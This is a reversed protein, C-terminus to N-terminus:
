TVIWAKLLKLLIEMDIPKSLFENAGAKLAEDKDKSMGKASIAFIPINKGIELNRIEKITELGDEVPMMIDMLVADIREDEKKIFEVAEKGNLASFTEAGYKQLASSLTFINRSDDDVILINKDKFIDSQTDMDDSVDGELISVDVDESREVKVEKPKDEIYRKASSGDFPIVLKFTTGKGVESEVEINGGMLNAFTKSISLGLGTGGFKRSISGDVQRFAEFILEKKDKPIGIGTDKVYFLINSGDQTVKFTVGGKKTFKFANSLLNKLIQLLKTKDVKLHSNVEDEVKFYLHKSSALEGFLGRLEEVIEGTTTQIEDLEMKGSEVKSLDLIDNILLLLDNGAKNIVKAKEIEEPSCEKNEILLKSLLIISNLPTRLEHSMNALFENKYKSALELEKARKNLEDQAKLLAENKIKMEKAQLELQQQQEEMQVNTEQLEESQAQLEEYARQSEELLKKIKSNQKTTHIATAFIESIKDIYEEKLEDFGVFSMIEAVGFLQGDHVLPFTYVEKTKAVTTGSEVVFEESDEINRLLIPEKELAVQGVIGEGIKIKSLLHARKKYAYSAVLNLVEEDEDYLYVVGSAGEVYKSSLTIAIKSLEVPDNVGTLKDGFESVGTRFWVENKNKIYNEKLMNTMAMIAMGLEDDKSKITISKDYDGKAIANAQKLISKLYQIMKLMAISLRDNKGKSKYEIEINGRAISEAVKSVERLYNIMSNLAEGLEDNESMKSIKADYNGIAVQSAINTIETLRNKMDLISKGLEDDKSLLKFEKSFDGKSVANSQEIIGKISEILVSTSRVIEGIEDKAGYKIEKKPPLQGSALLKLKDSVITLPKTISTIYRNIVFLSILLIVAMLAVFVKIFNSLSSFAKSTKEVGVLFWYRDSYYAKNPYVKEFSYIYGKKIFSVKDSGEFEKLKVPYDQFFTFSKQLDFGWRKDRNKNYLYYGDKNILYYEISKDNKYEEGILNLIINARLNMVLVSKVDDNKDVIPTAYRVVPVFPREIVGNEKNLDMKSIYFENKKLKIAKKFYVRKSKDQLQNEPVQKIINDIKDYILRLKEKGHIDLIRMQHFIKLNTLFDSANSIYIDKWYRIKRKEKLSSWIIYRQLSHINSNFLVDRPINHLVGDIKKHIISVKDAIKLTASKIYAKKASDFGYWGIIGTSIFIIIIFIIFIKNKISLNM